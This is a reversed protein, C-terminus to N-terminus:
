IHILSLYKFGTKLAEGKGMNRKHSIVIVGLKRAISATADKSGDDVVLILAKPFFKKCENIVKAINKEENYAPLLIGIKQLSESSNFQENVM